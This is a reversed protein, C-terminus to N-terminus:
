DMSDGVVLVTNEIMTSAVIDFVDGNWDELLQILTNFCVLGSVGTFQCSDNNYFSLMPLREVAKQEYYHITYYTPWYLDLM